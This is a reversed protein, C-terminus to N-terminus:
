VINNGSGATNVSTYANNNNTAAAAAGAASGGGSGLFGFFNNRILSMAGMQAGQTMMQNFKAKQDSSCKWYGYLNAYSLSMGMIVTILWNFELKLFGIFFLFTWVLPTAYIFGWFVTNDFPNKKKYTQSSNMQSASEFIWETKGDPLIKNWWRLGVLLRGTVNKVVWFDFALLVSCCVTITIFNAGKNNNSIFLGNFIYLLLAMIKFVCHFICAIPHSSLSLLSSQTTTTAAAQQQTMTTTTTTPQISSPFSGVSSITPAANDITFSMNNNMANSSATAFTTTDNEEETTFRLDYDDDDDDDITHQQLPHHGGSKHAGYM